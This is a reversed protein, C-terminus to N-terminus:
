RKNWVKKLDKELDLNEVFKESLAEVILKDYMARAGPTLGAKDAEEKFHKM